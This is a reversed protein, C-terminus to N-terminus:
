RPPSTLMALFLAFVLVFVICDIVLAAHANTKGSTSLEGKWNSLSMLQSISYIHLLPPCFILGLLAARLARSALEEGESEEVPEPAELGEETPSVRDPDDVIQQSLEKNSVVAPARQKTIHEDPSEDSEPQDEGDEEDFDELHMALISRAKMWDEELVQLKVGGLATGVYSGFLGVTQADAIMSKIGEEDLINKAMQAEEPTNFTAVTVVNDSM